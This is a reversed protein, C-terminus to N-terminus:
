FAVRVDVMLRTVPATELPAKEARARLKTGPALQAEARPPGDRRAPEPAANLRYASQDTACVLIEDAPGPVCREAAPAALPEDAPPGTFSQLLMLMALM